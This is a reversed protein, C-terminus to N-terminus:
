TLRPIGGVDCGATHTVRETAARDALRAADANVCWVVSGGAALPVLLSADLGDARDLPLTSLVRAGPPLGHQQAGHAAATALEAATWERGGARLAPTASEVPSGLLADPQPLVAAMFAAAAGPLSVDGEADLVVCAGASWAGLAAVTTLWHNAPSLSVPDGAEVGYEDVLLNATKAAWNAITAVSLEVRDGTADDYWTLFPRAGDRRLEAALL